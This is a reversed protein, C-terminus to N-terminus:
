FLDPSLMKPIFLTLDPSVIILVLVLLMVLLFAGMEKLAHMCNIGAIQSSILLCLGYPPTVLGFALSVVSVIGFHLPNIGALEALPKLLPGLIIIAPVADMFCGVVLFVSAIILLILTPSNTIPGILNVAYQPIKFYALVWGYISATGVAFLVVGAFKGAQLLLGPIDKISTTKYIFLAIIFSYIVALVSAETPTVIGGVIGGVIIVPTLLALISQKFNICVNKFSFKEATPYKRKITFLLVLGMQFLAIMVGPIFGALFLASVSSGMTGGWVIMLISPPIIVGMVSSCATVAVSFKKDYGKEVMAPILVSGIGAADANSSGSIGAFLMSVFINVHALGGPFGGVISQSLNILRKTIGSHNMIYAALLFFPISLLIFSGYSTMMRQVLMIPTINPVIFLIPLVSLALSFSVPIRLILLIFLTLFMILAVTAANM